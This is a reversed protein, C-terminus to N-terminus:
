YTCVTASMVDCVSIAAKNTILENYIMYAAIVIVVVMVQIVLIPLMTQMTLLLIELSMLVAITIDKYCQSATLMILLVLM